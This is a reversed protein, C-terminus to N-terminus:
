GLQEFMPFFAVQLVEMVGSLAVAQQDEVLQEEVHHTPGVFAGAQDHGGIQGEILPSFQQAALTQDSGQQVPQGVADVDEFGIAFAIQQLFGFAALCGAFSSILDVRSSAVCAGDGGGSCEPESLSQPQASSVKLVL